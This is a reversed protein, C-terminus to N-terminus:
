WLLMFEFRRLPLRVEEWRVSDVWVERRM